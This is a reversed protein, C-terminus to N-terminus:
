GLGDLGIRVALHLIQLAFDLFLGKLILGNLMICTTSYSVSSYPARLIPRRPSAIKVLKPEKCAANARQEAHRQM